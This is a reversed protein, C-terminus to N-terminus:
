IDLMDDDDFTELNNGYPKVDLEFFNCLNILHEVNLKNHSVYGWDSYGHSIIEDKQLEGRGPCPIWIKHKITNDFINYWDCVRCYKHGIYRAGKTTLRGDPRCYKLAVLEECVKNYFESIDELAM